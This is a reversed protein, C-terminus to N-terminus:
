PAPSPSALVQDGAIRGLVVFEGDRGEALAPLPTIELRDWQTTIAGARFQLEKRDLERREGVAIDEDGHGRRRDIVLFGLQEILFDGAIAHRRDVIREREDGRPHSSRRLM